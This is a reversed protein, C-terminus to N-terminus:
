YFTPYSVIATDTRGTTFYNVADTITVISTGGYSKAFWICEADSHAVVISPEHRSSTVRYIVYEGVAPEIGSWFESTVTPGFDANGSRGFAINNFRTTNPLDSPAYKVAVYGVQLYEYAGMDPMGVIPNGLIDTQPIGAIVVGKNRCPSGAQLSFDSGASTFLPNTTNSNADESSASRWAAITTYPAGGNYQAYAYVATGGTSKYLQNYDSSAFFVTSSINLIQYYSDTATSFYFINNKLNINTGHVCYLQNSIVAVGNNYVTNNFFNIIGSNTAPFMIAAYGGITNGCNVILNYYINTVDGAASQNVGIGSSTSIANIDHINNYRCTITNVGMGWPDLYIGQTDHDIENYEVTINNSNFIQIATGDSYKGTVLHDHISYTSHCHSITSNNSGVGGQGPSGGTQVGWIVFGNGNYNATCYSITSNGYGDYFGIGLLRNRYANVHDVVSNGVITSTSGNFLIGKNGAMRVDLYSINIYTNQNNYICYQRASIQSTVTGPDTTSYVYCKDPTPTYDIFYTSTSTVGTLAAVQTFLVDNITVMYYLGNLAAACDHSWVNGGTNTWGTVIDSGNIIPLNGSGYATFTIPSGSVGSQSITLQERWEDGRNFYVTDGAVLTTANVKSITKWATGDTTGSAADSGSNKVYYTSM